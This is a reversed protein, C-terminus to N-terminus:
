WMFLSNLYDNGHTRIMFVLLSLGLVGECVFFTMLLVYLYFSGEYMLCYFYIFYLLYLVIFELSMLSLLIHNKIFILSFIGLIYMFMVFVWSM